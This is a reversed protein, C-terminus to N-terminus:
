VKLKQTPYLVTIHPAEFDFHRVKEKAHTTYCYNLVCAFTWAPPFRHHLRYTIM